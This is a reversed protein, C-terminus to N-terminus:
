HKILRSNWPYLASNRMAKVASGWCNLGGALRFPAPHVGQFDNGYTVLDWSRARPVPEAPVSM